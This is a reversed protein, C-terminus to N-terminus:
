KARRSKIKAAQRRHIDARARNRRTAAKPDRAHAMSLRELQESLELLAPTKRELDLIEGEEDTVM